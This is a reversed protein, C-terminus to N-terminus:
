DQEGITSRTSCPLKGAAGTSNAGM